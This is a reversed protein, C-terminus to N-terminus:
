ASSSGGSFVDGHLSVTPGGKYLPIPPRTWPSGLDTENSRASFQHEFHSAESAPIAPLEPNAPDAGFM